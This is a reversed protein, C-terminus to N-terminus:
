ISIDWITQGSSLIDNAFALTFQHQATPVEYVLQGRLLDGAAVKGDPAQGIDTITENYQQGTADKFTFQGLSSVDQEQSSLNKMTVDVVVYINGQKPQSFDDGTNTKASNVTILWTTGVKVQDGVKFHAQPKPAAVTGTAVSSSNTVDSASGCALVFLATLALVVVPIFIRFQKVM